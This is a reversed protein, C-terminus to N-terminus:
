KKSELVSGFPRDLAYEHTYSRLSRIFLLFALCVLDLDEARCLIEMIVFIGNSSTYIYVWAWRDAAVM